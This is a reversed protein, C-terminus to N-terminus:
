QQHRGAGAPTDHKSIGFASLVQEPGTAEARDALHGGQRATIVRGAPGTRSRSGKVYIGKIRIAM